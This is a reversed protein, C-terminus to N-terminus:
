LHLPLLNSAASRRFPHLRDPLCLGLHRGCRRLERRRGGQATASGSGGDFIYTYLYIVDSIDDDGSNDADGRVVAMLARDANVRGWGVYNNVRATDDFSGTYNVRDSSYRIIKRLQDVTLDTRRARLLAIIGSVEACAASTGGFKCNYRDNQPNCTVKDPNYGFSGMQDLTWIDATELYVDGSPAMVDLQEGYESWWWYADTAKTAGVAIVEPMKAPWDIYNPYYDAYNGSAAVISVGASDALELALQLNSQGCNGGTRDYCGWSCNIVKAGAAVADDVALAIMEDDAFDDISDMVVDSIKQEIIRVHQSAIGTVGISNSVRAAIIGLCGMGHARGYPPLCQLWPWYYDQCDIVRQPDIDEHPAFGDDLIAVIVDNPPFTYDFAKDLEIDYVKAHPNNLYWQYQWYPDNPESSLVFRTSMGAKAYSALGSEVYLNALTLVDPDSERSVQMIVINPDM